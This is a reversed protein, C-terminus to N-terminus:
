SDNLTETLAEAWAAYDEDTADDWNTDGQSQLDARSIIISHERDRDDFTIDNFLVYPITEVEGTDSWRIMTAGVGGAENLRRVDGATIKTAM